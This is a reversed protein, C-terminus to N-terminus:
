PFRCGPLRTHQLSLLVFCEQLMRTISIARPHPRDAVGAIEPLVGSVQYRFIAHDEYLCDMWHPALSSTTLANPSHIRNELM